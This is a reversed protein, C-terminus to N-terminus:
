PNEMAINFLWITNKGSKGLYGKSKGSPRQGDSAAQRAVFELSEPHQLM